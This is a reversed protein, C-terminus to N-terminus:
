FQPAKISFRPLYHCYLGHYIVAFMPDRRSPSVPAFHCFVYRLFNLTKKKKLTLFLNQRVNM